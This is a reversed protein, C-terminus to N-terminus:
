LETINKLCQDCIKKEKFSIFHGTEDCFVCSDEDKQLIIFRDKVYIRILDKENLYMRRRISKPLVIRGFKDIPRFIGTAKM